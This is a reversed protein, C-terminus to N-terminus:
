SRPAGRGGNPMAYRPARALFASREAALREAYARGEAERRAADTARQEPTRTDRAEAGAIIRDLADSYANQGIVVM